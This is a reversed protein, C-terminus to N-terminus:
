QNEEGVDGESGTGNVRRGRVMSLCLFSACKEMSTERVPFVGSPREFM